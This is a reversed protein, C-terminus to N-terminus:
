PNIETCNKCFKKSSNVDSVKAYLGTLESRLAAIEARIDQDGCSSERFLEEKAGEITFRREHLLYKLRMFLQLDKESYRNRGGSDKRPQILPIEKEWYRIVHAKENLLRCIEGIGYDAM